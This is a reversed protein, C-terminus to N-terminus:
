RCGTEFGSTGYYTAKSRTRTNEVQDAVTRSNRTPNNKEKWTAFISNLNGAHLVHQVRSIPSGM